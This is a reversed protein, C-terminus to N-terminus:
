KRAKFVNEIDEKILLSLEEDSISRKASLRNAQQEVAREFINRVYRANGFNKTKNAVVYSLNNKLLEAADDTINYQNKDLYLKFIDFLEKDSYDPFNIYRTFRSQLGPNSDIFRKMEDPYGAIIVVLKDRDDEMRKLLTSIAEQGYDSGANEPVLAYAEDIFLVGNLASDIVANTKTATQGVYEAVLGSRDTEVTHGSKLIGLDKYIRAVIRAVTTKGTGPSGTFVLHFSMKPVKLGQAKRQQQIKAFNALTHVEEKVSELGILEDLEQYPDGEMVETIVVSDKPENPEQAIETIPKAEKEAPNGTLAAWLAFIALAALAGGGYHKVNKTLKVPEDPHQSKYLLGYGWYILPLLMAVFILLGLAGDAADGEARMDFVAIIGCIILLLSFGLIAIGCGGSLEKKM